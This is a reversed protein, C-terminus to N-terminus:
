VTLRDYLGTNCSLFGITKKVTLPDSTVDIDCVSINGTSPKLMTAIMRLTTTKGAGNPGILGFVRGPMCNFNINDVAKVEQVNPIIYDKINKKVSTSFIKTLNEVKIM